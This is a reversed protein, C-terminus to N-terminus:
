GVVVIIIDIVVGIVQVAIGRESECGEDGSDISTGMSLCSIGRTAGDRKGRETMGVGPVQKLELIM